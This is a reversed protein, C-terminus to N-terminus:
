FPSHENLIVEERKGSYYYLTLLSGDIKDYIRVPNDWNVSAAHTEKWNFFKQYPFAVIKWNASADLIIGRSEQVIPHGMPSKIHSYKFLILNPTTKHRSHKIKLDQNLKALGDEIGNETLFRVLNAM